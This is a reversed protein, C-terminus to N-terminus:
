RSDTDAEGETEPVLGEESDFDDEIVVDGEPVGELVRVGERDSDIVRDSVREGEGVRVGDCVLASFREQLSTSQPSSLGQVM